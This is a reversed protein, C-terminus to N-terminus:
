PQRPTAFARALLRPVIFYQFFGVISVILGLWKAKDSDV